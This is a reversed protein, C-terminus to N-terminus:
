ATEGIKAIRFLAANVTRAAAGTNIHRCRLDVTNTDALLLYGSAQAAWQIDTAAIILTTGTVSDAAGNVRPKIILSTAAATLEVHAEWIYLGGGGTPVTFTNAAFNGDTDWAETAVTLTTWTNNNISQGSGQSASFSPRISQRVWDANVMQVNSLNVYAPTGCTPASTFGVAGTFAVTGNHQETGNVTFTGTNQFNVAFANTFNITGGDFNTVGTFTQGSIPTLSTQGTGNLLMENLISYVRDFEANWAALNITSQYTPITVRSTAPTYRKVVVSTSAVLATGVYTIQIANDKTFNSNAIQVGNFFVVFDKVTVDSSLGCATVDVTWNTGGTGSAATRTVTVNATTIAM